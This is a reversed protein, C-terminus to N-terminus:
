RQISEVVAADARLREIGAARATEDAFAIEYLGLASPGSVIRAGAARLAQRIQQERAQPKFAIQAAFAHRPTDGAMGYGAEGVRPPMAAFQWAVVAVIAAAAAYWRRAPRAAAEGDIARSLRAWGFATSLAREPDEARARVLAGALVLEAQLPESSRAQAALEAIEQASLRGLAYAHIRTEHSPDHPSM